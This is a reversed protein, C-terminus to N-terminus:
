KIMQISLLTYLCYGLSLIHSLHLFVNKPQALSFFDEM